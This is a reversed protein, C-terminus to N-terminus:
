RFCGRLCHKPCSRQAERWRYRGEKSNCSGFGEALLVDNARAHIQARIRYFFFGKEFDETAHDIEAQSDCNVVIWRPTSHFRCIAADSINMSGTMTRNTRACLTKM